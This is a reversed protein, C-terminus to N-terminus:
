FGPILQLVQRQFLHPHGAAQQLRRQLREGGLLQVPRHPHEGRGSGNIDIAHLVGAGRGAVEQGLQGVQPEAAPHVGVGVQLLDPRGVQPHRIHRHREGM